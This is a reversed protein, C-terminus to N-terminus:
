KVEKFTDFMTRAEEKTPGAKKFEIGLRNWRSLLTEPSANEILWKDESALLIRARREVEALQADVGELKTQKMCRILCISHKAIGQWKMGRYELWLREWMAEWLTPARSRISLDPEVLDPTIAVKAPKHDSGLKALKRKTAKKAKPAHGWRVAAAKKARETLRGSSAERAERLADLWDILYSNNENVQFDMIAGLDILAVLAGESGCLASAVERSRVGGHEWTHLAFRLYGGLLAPDAHVAQPIRDPSIPLPRVM